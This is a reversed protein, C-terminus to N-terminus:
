LERGTCMTAVSVPILGLRTTAILFLLAYDLTVRIVVKSRRGVQGYADEVRLGATLAVSNSSQEKNASWSPGACGSRAAHFSEFDHLDLSGSVSRGAGSGPSETFFQSSSLKTHKASEHRAEM